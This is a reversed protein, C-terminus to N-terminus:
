SCFTCLLEVRTQRQFTGSLVLRPREIARGFEPFYLSTELRAEAGRVRFRLSRDVRWQGPSELEVEIGPAFHFHSDFRHAGPGTLEDALLFGDPRFELVREHRLEPRQQAFGDHACRVQNGDFRAPGPHGRRGMRFSKWMEAQELGDLRVTNHAATSRALTRAPGEAYELVGTDTLVPRGDAELLVALMDCHAHGPLHDPGLPATDFWLRMRDGAGRFVWYGSWNSGRWDGLVRTAAPEEAAAIGLRAAYCRLAHSGRAMGGASDNLLPIQGEADVMGELWGLARSAHHRLAQLAGEDGAGRALNALDLIDELLISHYMPSLEFHGGDAEFQRDLERLVIRRGGRQWDPQGLMQGLWWLGKGNAFVHNGALHHEIRRELNAGQLMLSRLIDDPYEDERHLFKLWNVVRLSLPYPEWGVSEARPPHRAIWDRMSAWGAEPSLGDQGLWDFYHLHYRWLYPQAAANWDVPQGLDVEHHLFRFRGRGVDCRDRGAFEVLELQNVEAREATATRVRASFLRHRAQHLIQGVTLHRVTEWYQRAQDVPLRPPANRASERGDPAPALAQPLLIEKM